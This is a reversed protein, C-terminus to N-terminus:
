SFCLPVELLNLLKYGDAFDSELDEIKLKRDALHVNGINYFPTDFIVLILWM